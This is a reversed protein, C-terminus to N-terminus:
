SITFRANFMIDTDTITLNSGVQQVDKDSNLILMDRAHSMLSCEPQHQDISPCVQLYHDMLFTFPLTEDERPPFVTVSSSFVTFTFKM